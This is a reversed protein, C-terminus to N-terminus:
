KKNDYYIKVIEAPIPLEEILQVVDERHVVGRALITKIAILSRDTITYFKKSTSNRSFIM